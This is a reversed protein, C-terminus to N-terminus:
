IFTFIGGWIVWYYKHYFWPQLALFLVMKRDFLSHIFIKECSYLKSCLLFLDTVKRLKVFYVNRNKCLMEKKNNDLIYESLNNRLIYFNDEIAFCKDMSKIFPEIFKDVISIHLFRMEDEEEKM